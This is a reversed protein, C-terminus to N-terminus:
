TTPLTLHTYSVTKTELFYANKLVTDKFLVNEISGMSINFYGANTQSFLVNFLRCDVMSCGSLKCNKFECRIFSTESFEANSFNCKEFCVNKFVVKELMVNQMMVNCFRCNEFETEFLDTGDSNENEFNCYVAKEGDSINKLYENDLDDINQPKLIKM